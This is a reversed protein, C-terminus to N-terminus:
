DLGCNGMSGSIVCAVRKPIGGDQEQSVGSAPSIAREALECTGCDPGLSPSTM